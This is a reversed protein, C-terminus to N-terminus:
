STLKKEIEKLKDIVEKASIEFERKAEEQNEKIWGIVELLLKKKETRKKNNNNEISIISSVKDKFRIPYYKEFDHNSFHSFNEENWGSKKYLNKMDEIIETEKTGGDIVVWVKNKYIPELHLFVFLSNFDAFKTSVKDRGDASFTRLESTLKSVFWPILYDEIITEASQEELFLWAKWLDLDSFEYGLEELIDKRSQKDNAESIKTTPVRQDNLNMEVHFVKTEPEVGLERLVINSHTSIIFQNIDSKMRIYKMLSKLAQPHIHNEPEEILFIKGPSLTLDALLSLINATGDGLYEISISKNENVFLSAKKGNESDVTVIDLGLVENCANRFFIYKSEDSFNSLIKDIKPNLYQLTGTVLSRTNTNVVEEYKPVKRGALFPYFINDPEKDQFSRLQIKAEEKNDLANISTQISGSSILIKIIPIYNGGTGSTNTKILDIAERKVENFSITIIANKQNERLDKASLLLGSYQLHYLSNIITSKGSNNKGILLNIKESFNITEKEIGRINEIDISKIWM